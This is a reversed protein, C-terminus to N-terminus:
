TAGLYLQDDPRRPDGRLVTLGSARRRLERERGPRRPDHLHRFRRLVGHRRGAHLRRRKGPRGFLHRAPGLEGVGSVGYVPGGVFAGSPPSSTFNISQVSQSAADTGISFSQQVPPAPKFKSNGRQTANITCTGEGILHVKVGTVKCIGASEAETDLEVPLGSSAKANVNYPPDHVHAGAPPMSLFSITQVAVADDVDMSQTVQPAALYSANGAQNARVTCTGPGVFSVTAGSITCVGSSGPALSFSVPLGSSASAGVVYFGGM